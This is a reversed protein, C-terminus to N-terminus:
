IFVNFGGKKKLFLFGKRTRNDRRGERERESEFTSARSDRGLSFRNM